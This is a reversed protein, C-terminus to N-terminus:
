FFFSFLSRKVKGSSGPSTCHKLCIWDMLLVLIDLLTSRALYVLKIEQSVSFPQMVSLADGWVTIDMKKQFNRVAM